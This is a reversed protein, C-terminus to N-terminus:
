WAGLFKAVKPGNYNRGGNVLAETALENMGFLLIVLKRLRRANPLRWGRYMLKRKQLSRHKQYVTPRAQKRGGFKWERKFLIAQAVM